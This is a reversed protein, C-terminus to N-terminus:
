FVLTKNVDASERALLIAYALKFTEDDSVLAPKGTALEIAYDSFIDRDAPPVEIFRDGDADILHIRGGIVEIVGQTGTVRIRDDGHSVATQPRLFDIGADAIIGNKMRFLCHAAVELSGHDLNDSSDHYATVCEFDAGTFYLIWDIAHSGVWPITGGYTKRDKYFDPRSGLKYSKQTRVLKIRGIRGSKVLHAAYLFAPDYRLGIMSRIHTGSSRWIKEIEALEQFNLAIPKECFVNIGRSLAAICMEAHLEFPGDVCLLDPRIKDLMVRWDDFAVPNFGAKESTSILPKPSDSCASSIGLLEVFPVKKIGGFVYPNWHGRCGAMCFKM